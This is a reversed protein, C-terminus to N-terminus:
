AVTDQVADLFAEMSAPGGFMWISDPLRTVNGAEVFPLSTWVKNDKLADTYPDAEADNGIYWYLTDDPLKTLGEVDTQGLGYAPDGEIGIASWPNAFGLEKLLGGIQSGELYPRVSVAGGADYADNFAVPKGAADSGEVAKKTEALKEDFDSKLDAAEDETGTVQAVLDVNKWMQGLPDKADGGPVVIVPTTKEIQEIADGALQDTVLVVDLDLSALTDISPEGRTGIDTAGDELEVSQDWTEFGEIDSVGVPQVGLSILYEVTNWETSAIREAPADLTVEKGRADTVTVPGASSESTTDEGDAEETTGCAALSLALAATAAVLLSRSRKM